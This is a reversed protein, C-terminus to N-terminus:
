LIVKNINIKIKLLLNNIYDTEDLNHKKAYGFFYGRLDEELYIPINFDKSSTVRTATKSINKLELEDEKKM